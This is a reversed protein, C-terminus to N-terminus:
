EDRLCLVPDIRAARYTQFGVTLWAILLATVAAIMFLWWHLEIRYAFSELWRNAILYGIPLAILIALLVMKTFSLSLMRTIGWISAGLIKRIGIEKSRREAMFATLGFLGLCSILIALIAFYGSLAAVREEAEYLQQYEQDLFSFSFPFGPHFTEYLDEIQSITAKETGAQINVLIDRGGNRFRFILPEVQRHISGYHFDKVLGIIERTESGYGITTGIPNDLQMLQLATENIIIHSTGDNFERSFSRGELMEMGLTEIVDYGIRPAQFRFKKDAEEGRWSYGSQNDYGSLINGNMNSALVVGPIQKLERLFLAPAKNSNGMLFSIVHDRQFGLHKTQIYTMQQKVVLVGVILIVSLTFQFIVLGQRIWQEGASSSRRGKLVSIPDFGSLYFAPYSGAVFGTFLVIGALSILVNPEFVLRISKDTLENFHPLILLVLCFALFFSLVAMLMSESLFQWILERRSAGIAKKVGIEKMKTSAQATSLNMFNICAILLIFLAVISFLRVYVIRGGLQVGNEYTGHLYQQSYQQVFVKSNKRWPLQSSTFLFDGIKDNFTQIDTDKKLVLLTKAYSGSWHGAWRDAKILLDFHAVADFQLSANDPPDEYVGAVQVIEEFTEGDFQFKWTLTKGMAKEASLFMKIAIDESLVINRKDSLVYATNGEILPYSLQEFFNSSAFLGNSAQIQGEHSLIGEPKCFDANIVVAAEVEPMEEAMAQALLAPTDDETQINEEKQIHLKVQYLQPDIEHFSDVSLEDAVWLYILLTCALGTSLGILNILFSTKNRLFGRYSILLNHRFMATPPVFSQPNFHKLIAPRLLKLTEVTYLRKTKKLSYRELNDQFVEEMDGEIEELYDERIAWRMFSLPWQPPRPDPPQEKM